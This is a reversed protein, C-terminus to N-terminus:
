ISYSWFTDDFINKSKLIKIGEKFFEKDKCLWYIDSFRFKTDRNVLNKEKMFRLIDPVSGSSLIDDFDEMNVKTQVRKVRFTNEPAKAVVVRNISM